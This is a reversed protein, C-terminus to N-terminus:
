RLLPHAQLAAALMERVKRLRPSDGFDAHSAVWLPIETHPPALDIKELRPDNQGLVDPLVARGLRQAVMERLVVFSDSGNAQENEKILTENWEGSQTRALNGRLSLQPADPWGKPAYVSVWLTGARTGILEDSLRLAPRITIDAHLRSLDLHANSSHLEFGLGPSQAVLGAIVEPLVTVALSDTSTLRIVGSVQADAGALTREVAEIAGFVERIASIVMQRSQPIQYGLPTREFIESGHREEFAAIRRIVTAHNVGLVRAAGSVSGEDAVALVFRLDDWNDKHM